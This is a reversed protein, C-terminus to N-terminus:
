MSTISQNGHVSDHYGTERDNVRVIYSRRILQLVAPLSLLVLIVQNISIPGPAFGIKVTMRIGILFAVYELM